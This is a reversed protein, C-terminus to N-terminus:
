TTSSGKETNTEANNTDDGTTAASDTKSMEPTDESPQEIDASAAQQEPAEEM